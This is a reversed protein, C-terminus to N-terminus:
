RKEHRERRNDYLEQIMPAIRKSEEIVTTSFPPHDGVHSFIDWTLRRNSKLLHFRRTYQKEKWYRHFAGLLGQCVEQGVIYVPKRTGIAECTMTMSDGTVLLHTATALIAHYSNPEDGNWRQIPKNEKQLREIVPEIAERVYSPTDPTYTLMVRTDFDNVLREIDRAFSKAEEAYFRFSTNKGGILIGVVPSKSSRDLFIPNVLVKADQSVKELFKPTIGHLIGQTIICNKQFSVTLGKRTLKVYEHNPLVVADFFGFALKPNSTFVSVTQHQSAKAVEICAAVTQIGNGIVFKPLPPTLPASDSSELFFAFQGSTNLSKPAGGFSFNSRTGMYRFDLIWKQVNLPLWNYSNKPVVRKVEFPLGLAEALAISPAENKANGDGIVWIESAGQKVIKSSHLRIQGYGHIVSTNFLCRSRILPLSRPILM